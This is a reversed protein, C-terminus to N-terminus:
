SYSDRNGPLIIVLAVVLAGRQFRYPAGVGTRTTLTAVSALTAIM